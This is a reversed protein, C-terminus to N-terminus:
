DPEDLIQRLTYKNKILMLVTKMQGSKLDEKTALPASLKLSLWSVFISFLFGDALIFYSCILGAHQGRETGAFKTTLILCILQAVIQDIMLLMTCVFFCESRKLMPIRKVVVHMRRLALLFVVVSYFQGILFFHFALKTVLNAKRECIIVINPLVALGYGFINM